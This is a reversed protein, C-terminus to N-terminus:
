IGLSFKYITTSHATDGAYIVPSPFGPNHISDPFFQTELCFGNRNNYIVGNKGALSRIFNGSYFQVGPRDSFVELMRGTKHEYVSAFKQVGIQSNDIVWNHDYGGALNLQEYDENIDSGIMKAIRFDMCTGEVSAIEGTPISGQSIPTYSSCDLQLMHECVSGSDHGGLNFYSHNTLNFITDKDSLGNYSIKLANDDFLEYVVTMELNGPFGQDGEPSFLSLSLKSNGYPVAKFFRKHYGNDFSSHLNNQGENKELHYTKDGLSFSSGRIRNANRGIVAGFFPPNTEYGSVDSFGLVVDSFEGNRDPVIVSVVAAGYDSISVRIGSSNELTYLNAKAGQKTVGFEEVKM